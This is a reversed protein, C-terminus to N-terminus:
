KANSLLKIGEDVKISVSQESNRQKIEVSGNATMRESVVVRTPAGLLDAEAFKEGATMNERDDYLVEVHNKELLGYVREAEACVKKNESSLYLLHVDFPAVEKPWIIGSEDHHIEVVTGMLRSVGIGYSGMVVPKKRGDKDQFELGFAEAYKTGLPFINGVEIANGQSIKGDCQPCQEGVKRKSIESNEAYRCKDCYFIVDEGVDLLVQFEHTTSATFAGGGAVTYLADLGCRKFVNMYAGKMKEYYLALDEESAHFSYLDKMLFERGRLIGSKARAENRFKTQIQYIARPLDKYSHIYTKAIATLVEEHTWGLSFNPRDEGKGLVDFGVPLNFRKTAELYKRDVLAPMFMEVGGAADMEERIIKGIKGIVRWGLPLYSYVGASNKYIFGGRTLLQANKSPEDAPGTKSIKTFLQSQKMIM